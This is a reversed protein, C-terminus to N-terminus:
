MSFPTACWPKGNNRSGPRSKPSKLLDTHIDYEVDHNEWPMPDEVPEGRGFALNELRAHDDDRTVM